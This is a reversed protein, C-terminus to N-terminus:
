KNNQKYLKNYDHSKIIKIYRCGHKEAVSSHGGEVTATTTTDTTVTTVPATTTISTRITARATTPTTVKAPVQVSNNSRQQQLCLGTCVQQFLRIHDFHFLKESNVKHKLPGILDNKIHHWTSTVKVSDYACVYQTVTMNMSVITHELAEHHCDVHLSSIIINAVLSLYNSSHYMSSWYSLYM